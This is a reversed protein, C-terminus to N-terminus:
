VMASGVRVEAQSSMSSGGSLKPMESSLPSKLGGPFFDQPLAPAEYVGERLTSICNRRSRIQSVRGWPKIKTVFNITTIKIKKKAM